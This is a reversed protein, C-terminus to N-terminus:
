KHGYKGERCNLLASRRRSPPACAGSREERDQHPLCDIQNQTLRRLGAQRLAVRERLGHENLARIGHVCVRFGLKVFM